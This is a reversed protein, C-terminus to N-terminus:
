LIMLNKTTNKGPSPKIVLNKGIRTPKYYKKWANAWDVESVNEITIEGKGILRLKPLQM